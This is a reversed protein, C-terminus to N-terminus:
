QVVVRWLGACFNSSYVVHHVSDYAMFLGGDGMSPSDTPTMATPNSESTQFYPKASPPCPAQWPGAKSTWVHTGDGTVGSAAGPSGSVLTWTSSAGDPSYLLGEWSSQFFHGDATRYTQQHHMISHSGPIQTWSGGSDDSIYIASQCQHIHRKL